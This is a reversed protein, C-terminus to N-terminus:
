LGWEHVPAGSNQREFYAHTLADMDHGHRAVFDRQWNAGNRKNRLRGAIVALYNEIDQEDLHLMRLGDRALPLLHELMLAYVSITKGDYWELQASLGHKAAAYFNRRAQEFPLHHEPIFEGHSMAEVLGYFLAANAITDIVSPGAPVVRHEIRLSPKGSADIGILPRNWRWITGNHLCLHSMSDAPEEEVAPLLVPYCQLNREFCEFLSQEVYCCGFGVRGVDQGDDNTFGGAAVAQEFVPIRTEDWLDHGFLFPSNASIAVMPASLIHAANYARASREPSTQFHIQFSTAASELMVDLHYTRLHERGDINLHLPRGERLRLVQENLARFRKVESMNELSLDNESLSPLIGIMMLDHQQAHAIDRCAQWNQTLEQHMQQLVNGQLQRPTTNLELNFKSLESVIPLGMSEAKLLYEANGPVPQRQQDVLWLELEFGAVRGHDQFLGDAFWQGLLQTEHSLRQNFIHFDKHRFHSNDIEKGM